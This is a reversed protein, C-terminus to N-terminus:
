IEINLRKKRDNQIYIKKFDILAELNSECSPCITDPLSDYKKVQFILTLPSLRNDFQRCNLYYKAYKDLFLIMNFSKVAKIAHNNHVKHKLLSFLQGTASLLELHTVQMDFNEYISISHEVSLSCLCFLCEM